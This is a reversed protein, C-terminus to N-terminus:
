YCRTRSSWVWGGRGDPVPVQRRYCNESSALAGLESYGDLGGYGRTVYSDDVYRRPPDYYTVPRYPRYPRDYYSDRYPRESYSDRYPRESYNDRYPRDYYGQRDYRREEEIRSYRVSREHRIVKKYCCSSSYWVNNSRHRYYGDDYYDGAKASVGLLVLVCSCLVAFAIHRM